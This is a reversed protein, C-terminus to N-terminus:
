GTPSVRECSGFWGWMRSCWKRCTWFVSRGTTKSADIQAWAAVSGLAVSLLCVVFPLPMLLYKV